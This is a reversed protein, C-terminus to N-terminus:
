CQNVKLLGEKEQSIRRTMVTRYPPREEEVATISYIFMEVTWMDCAM